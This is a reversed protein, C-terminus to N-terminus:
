DWIEGSTIGLRLVVNHQNPNAFTWYDRLEVTTFKLLGTRKKSPPLAISLGYDLAHGTEFFRSYGIIAWPSYGHIPPAIPARFDYSMYASVNSRNAQPGILGFEVFVLPLITIGAGCGITPKTAISSNTAGMGCYAAFYALGYAPMTRTQSVPQPKPANPMPAAQTTRSTSVTPEPSPVSSSDEQASLSTGCLLVLFIACHHTVKM